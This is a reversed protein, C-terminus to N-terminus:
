CHKEWKNKTERRWEKCVGFPETNEEIKEPSPLTPNRFLQDSKMAQEYYNSFYWEEDGGVTSVCAIKGGPGPVGSKIIIILPQTDTCENSHQMLHHKLQSDKIFLCIWLLFVFLEKVCAPCM